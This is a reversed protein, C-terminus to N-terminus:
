QEPELSADVYGISERRLILDEGAVSLSSGKRLVPGRTVRLRVCIGYMNM